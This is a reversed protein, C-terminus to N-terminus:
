IRKIAEAFSIFKVEESNQYFALPEDHFLHHFYQLQDKESIQFDKATSRYAILANQLNDSGSFLKQSHFIQSLASVIKQLTDHDYFTNIGLPNINGSDSPLSADIISLSNQLHSLCSELDEVSYM